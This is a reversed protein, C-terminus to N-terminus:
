MSKSIDQVRVCVCVCLCVSPCVCLLFGRWAVCPRSEFGRDQPQSDLVKVVRRVTRGLRGDHHKAPGVYLM